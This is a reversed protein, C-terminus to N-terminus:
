WTTTVGTIELHNVLKSSSYQTSPWAGTVSVGGPRPYHPLGEMCTVCIQFIEMPRLVEKQGSAIFFYASLGCQHSSLQWFYAIPGCQHSSLEWDQYHTWDAEGEEKSVRLSCPVVRPFLKIGGWWSLYCVDKLYALIARPSFLFFGKFARKFTRDQSVWGSLDDALQSQGGCFPSGNEKGYIPDLSWVWGITLILHCLHRRWESRIMLYWFWCPNWNEVLLM